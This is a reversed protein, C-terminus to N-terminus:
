LGEAQPIRHFIVGEPHYIGRPIIYGESSIMAHCSKRVSVIKAERNQKKENAHRDIGHQCEFVKRGIIM